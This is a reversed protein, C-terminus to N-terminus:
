REVTYKSDVTRLMRGGGGEGRSCVGVVGRGGQAYAWEPMYFDGGATWIFTSSRYRIWDVGPAVTARSNKHTPKQVSRGEM